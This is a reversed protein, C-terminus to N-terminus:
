AKSYGQRRFYRRLERYGVTFEKAEIIVNQYEELRGILEGRISNKFYHRNIM